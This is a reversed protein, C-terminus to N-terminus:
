ANMTQLTSKPVVILHLWRHWFTNSMPLSPSQKSPKVWGRSCSTLLIYSPPLLVCMTKNALFGNLGNHPLFVMWNLRQLQYGRMEGNIVLFFSLYPVLEVSGHWFECSPLEEFVFPIKSSVMAM